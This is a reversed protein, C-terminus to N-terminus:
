TKMIADLIHSTLTTIPLASPKVGLILHHIAFYSYYLFELYNLAMQHCIQSRDM